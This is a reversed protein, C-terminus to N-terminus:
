GWNALITLSAVLTVLLLVVVLVGVMVEPTVPTTLFSVHCLVAHGFGLPIGLGAICGVVIAVIPVPLPVAAVM